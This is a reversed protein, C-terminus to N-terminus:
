QNLLVGSKEGANNSCAALMHDLYDLNVGFRISNEGEMTWDTFMPRLLRDTEKQLSLARQRFAELAARDHSGPEILIQPAFDAYYDFVDCAWLWLAVRHKQRQGDPTIKKLMAKTRSAEEKLLGYARHLADPNKRAYEFEKEQYQNAYYSGDKENFQARAGLLDAMKLADASAKGLRTPIQAYAADQAGFHEKAFCLDIEDQSMGPSNLLCGGAMLTHETFPWPSRRVAWSTIMVGLIHNQQATQVAAVTNELHVAKPVTASDDFCRAAPAVIVPFGYDRLLQTFPFPKLLDPERAYIYPRLIEKQKESWTEPQNWKGWPIGWPSPGSMSWPSPQPTSWYDWDMVTVHGRLVDLSELHALIMDGWIIPDPGQARIWKATKLYHGALIDGQSETEYRQKCHPCDPDLAVEDGGIHFYRCGEHLALMQGAMEQILAFAEPDSPCVSHMSVRNGFIVPGDQHSGKFGEGHKAFEDLRLLWYLHGLCQSFPIIEIGCAKAKAIVSRVQEKTFADPACAKQLRGEFPFRDHYELLLTNFGWRALDDIIELITEIRMMQARCDLHVGKVPIGLQNRATMIFVM